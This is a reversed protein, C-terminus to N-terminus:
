AVLREADRVVSGVDAGMARLGAEFFFEREGFAPRLQDLWTAGPDYEALFPRRCWSPDRAQLFSLAFYRRGGIRTVGDIAVKGPLASMVPGRASRGLGSADAIAARYVDLARALPVAFYRNAGTDREVFMYYPVVGLRVQERWM